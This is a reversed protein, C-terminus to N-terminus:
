AASSAGSVALEGVEPALVHAQEEHQMHEMQIAQYTLASSMGGPEVLDRLFEWHYQASLENQNNTM